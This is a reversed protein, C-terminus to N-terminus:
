STQHNITRRPGLANTWTRCLIRATDSNDQFYCEKM